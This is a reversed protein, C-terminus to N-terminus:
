GHPRLPRRPFARARGGRAAARAERRARRRGDRGRSAFHEVLRMFQSPCDSPSATGTPRARTLAGAPDEAPVPVRAADGVRVAGEPRLEPVYQLVAPIVDGARKVVVTDGVRLDRSVIFDENHLTARSVTVGGLPVPALMAEPKIAGTRGVNLVIERLVTTAERAPFKYAIAWRPASSVEGLTRQAAFRDVKFVCGDIEYDLTDRADTWRAAYALAADLDDCLAREPSM